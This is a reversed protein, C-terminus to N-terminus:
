SSACDVAPQQRAFRAQWLDPGKLHAQSCPKARNEDPALMECSAALMM